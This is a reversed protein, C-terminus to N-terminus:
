LFRTDEPTKEFADNKGDAIIVPAAALEERDVNELTAVQIFAFGNTDDGARGFVRVGCSKCFHHHLFAAPRGHPVWQYETTAEPASKVRLADPKVLVFWTRAKICHSCNCKRTGASIDIDAEFRVAGCHCSGSYTKTSM